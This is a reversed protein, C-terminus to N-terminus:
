FTYGCGPPQEPPLLWGPALCRYTLREGIRLNAVQYRETAAGAYCGSEKPSDTQRYGSTTSRALSAANATYAMPRHTLISCMSRPRQPKTWGLGSQLRIADLGTIGNCLVYEQTANFTMETEKHYEINNMGIHSDCM